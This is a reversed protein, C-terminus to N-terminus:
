VIQIELFIMIIFVTFMVYDKLAIVPLGFLNQEIPHKKMYNDVKDAYAFMKEFLPFILKDIHFILDFKKGGIIKNKKLNNIIKNGERQFFPIFRIAILSSIAFKYTDMGLIKLPKLVFNLVKIIDLARTTMTFMGSLIIFFVFKMLYITTQKLAIYDIVGNASNLYQFVFVMFLLFKFPKLIIVTEIFSIRAFYAFLLVFCLYFWVKNINWSLGMDTFCILVTFFKLLPNFKHIISERSLYQGFNKKAM